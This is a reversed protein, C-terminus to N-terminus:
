RNVVIRHNFLINAVDKAIDLTANPRAARLANEKMKSLLEPSALWESVTNAIEDPNGRYSGFGANEVFPV